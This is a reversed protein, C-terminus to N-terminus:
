TPFEAVSPSATPNSLSHPWSPEIILTYNITSFTTGNVWLNRFQNYTLNYNMYEESDYTVLISKADDYGVVVRYHGRSDDNSIRQLVIAPFGRQVYVKLAEISGQTESCNFGINEAYDKMANISTSNDTQNYVRSAIANQDIYVGWFGFVMQLAAPGCWYDGQTYYPVGDIYASSNSQGCAYNAMAPTLLLLVALLAISKM